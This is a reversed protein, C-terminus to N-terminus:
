LNGRTDVTIKVQLSHRCSKKRMLDAFLRETDSIFKKDLDAPLRNLCFSGGDGSIQVQGSTICDERVPIGPDSNRGLNRFFLPIGILQPKLCILIVPEPDNDAGICLFSRKLRDYLLNFIQFLTHSASRWHWTLLRSKRGSILM